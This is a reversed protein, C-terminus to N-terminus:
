RIGELLEYTLTEPDIVVAFPEDFGLNSVPYITGTVSLAKGNDSMLILVDCSRVREDKEAENALATQKAFIRSRTMKANLLGRVNEGAEPDEILEDRNQTWRRMVAEAVVRRGTINGFNPDLDPGEAGDGSFTSVDTGYDTPDELAM